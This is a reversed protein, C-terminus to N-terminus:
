STAPTPNSGVYASGVTKCVGCGFSMVQGFETIRRVKRVCEAHDLFGPELAEIEGRASSSAAGREAESRWDGFTLCVVDSETM